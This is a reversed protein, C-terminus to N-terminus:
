SWAELSISYEAAASSGPPAAKEPRGHCYTRHRAPHRAHRLLGACLRREAREREHGAYRRHRCQSRGRRAGMMTSCVWAFFFGFIAGSFLVSLVAMPKLLVRM